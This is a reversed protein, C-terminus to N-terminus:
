FHSPSVRQKISADTHHTRLVSLLENFSRNMVKPVVAAAAACICRRYLAVGVMAILNVQFKRRMKM